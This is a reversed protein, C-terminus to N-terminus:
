ASVSKGLMAEARRQSTRPGVALAGAADQLSFGLSLNERAGRESRSMLPDALALYTHESRRCQVAHRGRKARRLLPGATPM